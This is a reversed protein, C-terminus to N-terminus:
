LIQLSLVTEIDNPVTQIDMENHFKTALSLKQKDNNDITKDM